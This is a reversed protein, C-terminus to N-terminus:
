LRLSRAKMTSPAFMAAIMEASAHLTEIEAEEQLLAHREQPPAHLGYRNEVSTRKLDNTERDPAFVVNKALAASLNHGFRAGTQSVVTLAIQNWYRAFAVDSAERERRRAEAYADLGLNHMLANADDEIAATARQSGRWFDVLVGFLTLVRHKKTLKLSTDAVPRSKLGLAAEMASGLGWADGQDIEEQVLAEQYSPISAQSDLV